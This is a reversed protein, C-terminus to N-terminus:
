LIDSENCKWQFQSDVSQGMLAKDWAGPTLAVCEQSYCQLPIVMSKFSAIWISIHLFPYLGNNAM